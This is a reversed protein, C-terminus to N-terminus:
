WLPCGTSIIFAAVELYSVATPQFHQLDFALVMGLLPCAPVGSPPLSLQALLHALVVPAMSPLDHSLGHPWVGILYCGNGIVLKAQSAPIM